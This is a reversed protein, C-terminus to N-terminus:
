PIPISNRISKEAGFYHLKHGLRWRVSVVTVCLKM